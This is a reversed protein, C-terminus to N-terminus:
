LSRPPPTNIGQNGGGYKRCKDEHIVLNIKSLCMEFASMRDMVKKKLEFRVSLWKMLKGKLKLSLHKFTVKLM